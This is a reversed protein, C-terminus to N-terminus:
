CYQSCAVCPEALLLSVGDQKLPCIYIFLSSSYMNSYCLILKTCKMDTAAYIKMEKDCKKM